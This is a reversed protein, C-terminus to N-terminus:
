DLLCTVLLDLHVAICFLSTIHSATIDTSLTKLEGKEVFIFGVIGCIIYIHLAHCLFNSSASFFVYFMGVNTVVRM